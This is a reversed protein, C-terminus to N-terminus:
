LQILHPLANAAENSVEVLGTLILIAGLKKEERNIGETIFRTFEDLLVNQMKIKSKQIKISNIPINFAIGTKIINKRSDMTMTSRYSWIDEMKCYLKILEHLELNKFWNHNTYNDLMNIQYFVDKIKMEIEEDITLIKKEICVSIGQNILKDKYSIIKNKEDETFTRFTYPCSPYESQIIEYLTRIDYAYKKNNVENLFIYIYKGPIDYKSDFTLIDTDNTCVTRKYVLCKRFFSQILIISDIHTLFYREKEIETKLLKILLQKTQKTDITSKLICNQISKRISYISINANNSIKEFLEYKTYIKKSEDDKELNIAQNIEQNIEKNDKFLIINKSTLHKGCLIENHKPKNSCQIQLTNKNKVSHCLNINFINM